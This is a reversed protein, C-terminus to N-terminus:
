DNIKAYVCTDRVEKGDISLDEHRLIGELDFQLSEAIKRSRINRSNCRIELRRAYLHKFAFETIGKVAETMYGQGLFRSDMWYGIEFKRVEWDIRHLGSSGIFAGTQKHFLLLRLDERKLFAAHSERINAEVDDVTQESRAFPMWPKLEEISAQISEHVEKGDGPLPYRIHLRSTEFEYPFDFLIPNM